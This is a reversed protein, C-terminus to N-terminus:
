REPVCPPLRLTFVTGSGPESEVELRGGLLDTLKRSIPLGLGTGEKGTAREGQEFEEFIREIEGPPIGPGTDRVEIRVWPDGGDPAREDTRMELEIRGEDTFKVANSLLNLVVQRLRAPDTEVSCRAPVDIELDLGKRQAQPQVSTATDRLLSPLDTTEPFIEFKGAEIKSIDLIDNILELLHYASRGLKEVMSQQRENLEGVTGEALLQKYGILANIPTRLEHSMSAFFRSRETMARELQVTQANTRAHLMANDMAVAAQGALLQLLPADSERRFRSERRSFVAALTPARDEHQLRAAVVSRYGAGEVMARLDDPLAHTPLADADVGAQELAAHLAEVLRAAEADDVELGARVAGGRADTGRDTRLLAAEARFVSLTQELFLRALDNPDLTQLLTRAINAIASLEDNSRKIRAMVGVRALLEAKSCGKTIFDYAGLDLGRVVLEDDPSTGTLFVVPIPATAPDAKLREVVEFGDMGPMHVDLIIVDPSWDRAREIGSQGDGETTVEHGGDQLMASVTRRPINQDDVVLVRAM